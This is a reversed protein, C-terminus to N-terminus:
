KQIRKVSKQESKSSIKDSNRRYNLFHQFKRFNKFERLFFEPFNKNQFFEFPEFPEFPETGRRDFREVRCSVSGRESGRTTGRPTGAASGRQTKHLPTSEARAADAHLLIQSLDEMPVPSNSNSDEMDEFNPTEQPEKQEPHQGPSPPREMPRVVKIADLVRRTSRRNREARRGFSHTETLYLLLGRIAFLSESEFPGSRARKQRHTTSPATRQAIPMKSARLRVQQRDPMPHHIRQM